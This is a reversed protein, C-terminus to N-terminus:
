CSSVPSFYPRSFSDADSDQCCQREGGKAQAARATIKERERGGGPAQLRRDFPM